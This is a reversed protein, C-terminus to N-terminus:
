SIVHVLEEMTSQHMLKDPLLDRLEDITMRKYLYAVEGANPILVTDGEKLTYETM